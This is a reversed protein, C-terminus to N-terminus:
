KSQNSCECSDRSIRFKAEVDAITVAKCEIVSVRRFRVYLQSVFSAMLMNSPVSAKRLERPVHVYTAVMFLELLKEQM